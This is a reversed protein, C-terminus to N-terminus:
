VRTLTKWFQTLCLQDLSLSKVLQTLADDGQILDVQTTQRTCSGLIGYYSYSVVNSIAATRTKSSKHLPASEQKLEGLNYLCLSEQNLDHPAREARASGSLNHPPVARQELMERTKM